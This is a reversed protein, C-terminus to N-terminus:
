SNRDANEYEEILKSVGETRLRRDIKEMKIEECQEQKSDVSKNHKECWTSPYKGDKSHHMLTCYQCDMCYLERDKM